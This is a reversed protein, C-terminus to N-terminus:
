GVECKPKFLGSLNNFIGDMLHKSPNLSHDQFLVLDM